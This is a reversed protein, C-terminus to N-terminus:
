TAMFAGLPSFTRRTRLGTTDAIEVKILKWLAGVQSCAAPDDQSNSLRAFCLVLPKKPECDHLRLDGGLGGLKQNQRRSLFALRDAEQQIAICNM